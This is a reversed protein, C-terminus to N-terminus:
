GGHTEGSSNLLRFDVKVTTGGNSSVHLRGRLQAEALNAVLQFGLSENKKYNFDAPLGIGNDKVSLVFRDEPARSFEVLVRGSRGEPFAHKLSNTVLENIILGCPFVTGVPLFVHDARTEVSVGSAKDFFAQLIHNALNAAYESIDIGALDESRYLHDHILAMSRIRSQSDNLAGLVREDKVYDCQLALLSSIIQLNNKVRHHVESLLVEKEKLSARIQAEAIERQSIEMRLQENAQSLEKTREQVKRELEQQAQKLAEEAAIRASIERQMEENAKELARRREKEEQYLRALDNAYKLSQEILQHKELDQEKDLDPGENM